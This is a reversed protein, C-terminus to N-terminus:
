EHATGQPLQATDFNHRRAVIDFHIEVGDLVRLGGALTSYPEVGYDTQRLAFAGKVHLQEGIVRMSVPLEFNRNIGHLTFSINLVPAHLDPKAVTAQIAVTPWETAELVKDLMNRRTGKKASESMKTDMGYENRLVERDVELTALSVILDARGNVFNEPLCVLGNIDTTSIVHDHGFRALKGGKFVLIDVRSARADVKYVPIGREAAELYLDGPLQVSEGVAALSQVAVLLLIAPVSYNIPKVDTQYKMTPLCVPM